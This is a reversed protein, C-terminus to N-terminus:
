GLFVGLSDRSAQLGGNVIRLYGLLGLRLRTLTEVFHAKVGCTSLVLVDSTPQLCGNMVWTDRFFRLLYVDLTKV